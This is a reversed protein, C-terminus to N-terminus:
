LKGGYFQMAYNLSVNSTVDEHIENGDRKDYLNVRAHFNKSDYECVSLINGMVSFDLLKDFRSNAVGSKRVKTTLGDSSVM